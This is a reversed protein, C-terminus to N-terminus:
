RKVLRMVRSLYVVERSTAEELPIEYIKEIKIHYRKLKHISGLLSYIKEIAQRENLARVEKVFKQWTPYKDHSILMKGEVRYIKVENNL